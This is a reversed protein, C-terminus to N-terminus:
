NVEKMNVPLAIVIAKLMALEADDTKIIGLEKYQDLQPKQEKSVDLAKQAYVIAEPKKLLYCIKAMVSHYRFIEDNFELSGGTDEFGKTLLQYQEELKEYLKAEVVIEALKIDAIGSSGSRSVKYYEICKRYNTEANVFDGVRAFYDGLLEYAYKVSFDEKPYEKILRILLDHGVKNKESDKSSLLYSAKIQLYQAKNFAGRAKRLRAEFSTETENDWNDGRYWEDNSM